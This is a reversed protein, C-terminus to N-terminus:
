YGSAVGVTDDEVVTSLMVITAVEQDYVMKWFERRTDKLPGQTM